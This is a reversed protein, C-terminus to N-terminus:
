GLLVVLASGLSWRHDASWLKLVAARISHSLDGLFTSIRKFMLTILLFLNSLISQYMMKVQSYQICVVEVVRFWQNGGHVQHICEIM